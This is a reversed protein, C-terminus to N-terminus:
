EGIDRGDSECKEKNGTGDDRGKVENYVFTKKKVVIFAVIEGVLAIAWILLLFPFGSGFNLWNITLITAILGLARGVFNELVFLGFNFKVSGAVICLLDDPFFPFTVTAFYWWKGKKNLVESWKNYDEESGACWKVAKKGFWRGFWYALICGCMYASMVTLLYQWSLAKIGISISASLVVYAPINLITVQLFMIVWIVLYVIWGRTGTIIESFWENVADISFVIECALMIATVVIAVKLLKLVQEKKM